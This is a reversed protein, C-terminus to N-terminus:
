PDAFTVHQTLSVGGPVQSPFNVQELVVQLRNSTKIGATKCRIELPSMVTFWVSSADTGPGATIIDEWIRTMVGLTKPTIWEEKVYESEQTRSKVVSGFETMDLTDYTSMENTESERVKPSHGTVTVTEKTCAAPM